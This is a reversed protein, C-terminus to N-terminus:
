RRQLAVAAICNSRVSGLWLTGHRLLGITATGFRDTGKGTFLPTVALTEPDIAAARYDVACSGGEMACAM